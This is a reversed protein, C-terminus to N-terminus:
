QSIYSVNLSDLHGSVKGNSYSKVVLQFSGKQDLLLLIFKRMRINVIVNIVIITGNSSTPTYPKVVPNGDEGNSGKIM